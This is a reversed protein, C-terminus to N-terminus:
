LWANTSKYLLTFYFFGSFTNTVFLLYCYSFSFSAWTILAESYLIYANFVEPGPTACLCGDASIIGHLPRSGFGTSLNGAFLCFTPLVRAIGSLNAALSRQPFDQLFILQLFLHLFRVFGETGQRIFQGYACRPFEHESFGGSTGSDFIGRLWPRQQKSRQQM